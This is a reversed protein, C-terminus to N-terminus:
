TCGFPRKSSASSSKFTKILFAVAFHLVAPLVLLASPSLCLSFSLSHTLPLSFVSATLRFSCRFANVSSTFPSVYRLAVCRPWRANVNADSDDDAGFLLKLPLCLTLSVSYSFHLSYIFPGFLTSVVVRSLSFFFSLFVFHFRPLAFLKIHCM